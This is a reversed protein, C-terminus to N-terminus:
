YEKPKTIFSLSICPKDELMFADYDVKISGDSANWGIENGFEVWVLGIDSYFDNLSVFNETFMLDNLDNVIKRIVEVSDAQFYRGSYSDFFLTRENDIPENNSLIPATKDPAVTRERVQEYKKEGVEDLVANQWKQLSKEGISYLALLSAYRYRHIRNSAVICGTSLLIMGVTPAYIPAVAKVKDLRSTDQRQHKLIDHATPAVKATMVVASIFGICGLAALITPSQNQVRTKLKM